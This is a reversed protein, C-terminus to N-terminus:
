VQHLTIKHIKGNIFKWVESYSLSVKEKTALYDTIEFFDKSSSYKAILSEIQTQTLIVHNYHEIKNVHLPTNLYRYIGSYIVKICLNDYIDMVKVTNNQICYKRIQQVDTQSLTKLKRSTDVYTILDLNLELENLSLNEMNLLKINNIVLAYYKKATNKDVNVEKSIQRFSRNNYGLKFIEFIKTNDLMQMVVNIIGYKKTKIM